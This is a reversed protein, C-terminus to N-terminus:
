ISFTRDFLDSVLGGVRAAHRWAELALPVHGPFALSQPLQAPSFFAAEEVETADPAVAVAGIPVAHYYINLTRKLVGGSEPYEDLWMGLFGVIRVPLGTEEFVERRATDMPHEGPECFGGPVDWRGKWPEQARRVM